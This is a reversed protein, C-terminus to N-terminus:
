CCLGCFGALRRLRQWRHGGASCEFEPRTGDRNALLFRRGAVSVGPSDRFENSLIATMFTRTDAM